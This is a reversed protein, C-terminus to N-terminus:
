ANQDGEQPHARLRQRRELEQYILKCRAGTEHNLGKGIYIDCSQSAGILVEDPIHEIDEYGLFADNIIHKLQQAEFRDLQATLAQYTESIQTQMQGLSECVEVINNTQTILQDVRTEITKVKNLTNEYQKKKKDLFKFLPIIVSCLITLAIGIIATWEGITLSSLIHQIM